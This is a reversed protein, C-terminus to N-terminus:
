KQLPASFSKFYETENIFKALLLITFPYIILHFRDGQGCSIGSVLIIYLILFGVFAFFVNTKRNKAIFYIGLVFGLLTLLLNQGASLLYIIKKTKEFSTTKKVNKCDIIAGSGHLLNNKLNDIYAKFLNVKNNLIQEKFDNKAIENQRNVKFQFLYDARPNKEQLYIKGKEICKAKSGIYNHITIVDIYSITYNGFQHKMGLVQILVTFLSIYIFFMAKQKYNLILVKLFYLVIIIAIFKSVPKVLMSLILISLAFSLWKFSATKYYKNLFYLFLMLFFTYISEALLHFNIITFGLCLAFALTFFFAIKPKFFEKILSFLLLQTSFWSILNIFCSWKFILQDNNSFLYPIGNVFAMLIPRFPHGRQFLFLNKISELYNNSDPYVFTQLNLQLLLSLVSILIVSILLILVQFKYKKVIENM